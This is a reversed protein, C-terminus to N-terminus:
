RHASRYEGPTMGTLAKFTRCLHSQDFFGAQAAIEALSTKGLKIQDCAFEIRLRRLYEGITCQYYRHFVRALHVPHIAVAAGLESITLRESFHVRLLDTARLLWAAPQGGLPNRQARSGAAVIELALGEISLPSFADDRVFERYMKTALWAISGGRFDVPRDLLDAHERVRQRYGPTVEVNFSRVKCSHFRESHIEDQPHFALTNADCERTKREYTETYTGQLIKCFYASAHSHSPVFAHPAYLTETLILSAMQGRRVITGYYHGDLLHNKM